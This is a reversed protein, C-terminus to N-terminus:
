LEVSNYRKKVPFGLSFGVGKQNEPMQSGGRANGMMRFPFHFINMCYAYNLLLESKM